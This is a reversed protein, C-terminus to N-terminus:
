AASALRMASGVDSAQELTEFAHVLENIRAADNLVLKANNRFKTAVHEWTHPRKPFGLLIPTSRTLTRGDRLKVIVLGRKDGYWATEDAVYTVRRALALVAPETVKQETFSLPGLERDFMLRALLYPLSFRGSYSTPNFKAELPLFHSEVRQAPAWCEIKDIEGPTLRHETVLSDLSEIFHHLGHAATYFKLVNNMTNWQTGLGSSLCSADQLDGGIVSLLGRDGEYIFRPGKLGEQAWMAAIIGAHAAWGAHFLLADAGERHSQGLFLGLGGVLGQASALQQANLGLLRGAVVATAFLGPIFGRLVPGGQQRMREHKELDEPGWSASAGRPGYRDLLLSAGVRTAVEYGAVVATLVQKGSCHLMEGVALAAPVVSRSMHFGGGSYDTDDYDTGSIAISNAMAANPAAIKKTQGFLSAEPPGELRQAARIGQRCWEMTSGAMGVGVADLVHTKAKAIVESPIREFALQAAFEALTESHSHEAAGM